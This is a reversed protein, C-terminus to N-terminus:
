ISATLILLNLLLPFRTSLQSYNEVTNRMCNPSKGKILYKLIVTEIMEILTSDTGIPLFYCVNLDKGERYLLAKFIVESIKPVLYILM